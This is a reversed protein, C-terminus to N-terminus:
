DEELLAEVQQLLMPLKSQLVDWVIRDDVEAYGHILINRFSVVEPLDPVRRALGPDERTLHSLDDHHHFGALRGLVCELGRKGADFCAIDCAQQKVFTLIGPQSVV